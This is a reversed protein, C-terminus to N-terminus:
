KKDSFRPIWRIKSPHKLNCGVQKCNTECNKHKSHFSRLMRWSRVWARFWQIEFVFSTSIKQIFSTRPEISPSLCIGRVVLMKLLQTPLKGSFCDMPRAVDFQGRFFSNEKTMDSCYTWENEFLIRLTIWINGFITLSIALPMLINYCLLRLRASQLGTEMWLYTCDVALMLTSLAKLRALTLHSGTCALWEVDWTRRRIKFESSGFCPFTSACASCACHYCGFCFWKFLRQVSVCPCFSGTKWLYSLLRQPCPVVIPKPSHGSWLFLV